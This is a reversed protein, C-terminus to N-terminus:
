PIEVTRQIVLQRHPTRKAMVWYKTSIEHYTRKAHEEAINGNGDTFFSNVDVLVEGPSLDDNCLTIKRQKNQVKDWVGHDHMDFHEQLCEETLHTELKELMSVIKTQDSGPNFTPPTRGAKQAKVVEALHRNYRNQFTQLQLALWGVPRKILNCAIDYRLVEEHDAPVERCIRESLANQHPEEHRLIKIRRTLHLLRAYIRELFQETTEPPPFLWTDTAPEDTDDEGEAKWFIVPYDPSDANDPTTAYIEKLLQYDASEDWRIMDFDAVSTRSLAEFSLINNANPTTYVIKGILHTGDVEVIKTVGDRELKFKVVKPRPSWIKKDRDTYRQIRVDM